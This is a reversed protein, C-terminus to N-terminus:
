ASANAIARACAAVDETVEVGAVFQAGGCGYRAFGDVAAILPDLELEVVLGGVDM